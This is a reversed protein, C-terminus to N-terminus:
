SPNEHYDLISITCNCLLSRHSICKKSPTTGMLGFTQVTYASFLCGGIIAGRWLYDLSFEKWKPLFILSMLIAGVTFRIALLHFTPVADLINKMIFFSTGWILAASFLMPKALRHMVKPSM